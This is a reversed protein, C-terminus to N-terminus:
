PPSTPTPLSTTAIAFTMSLADLHDTEGVKPPLAPIGARETIRALAMQSRLAHNKPLSLNPLEAALRLYALTRRNTALRRQTGPPPLSGTFSVIPLNAARLLDILGAGLGAADIVVTTPGYEHYMTCIDDAQSCLDAPRIQRIALVNPGQRVAVITKNGGLRAVDIGFIVPASSPRPDRNIAAEIAAIPFLAHAPAAPWQGLFLKRFNDDPLYHVGDFEFSDETPEPSTPLKSLMETFLRFSVAGPIVDHRNQINPHSLADLTVTHWDDANCAAAFYCPRASTNGIALIRNHEAVAVTQAAAFIEPSIGAAEDLIILLREAHLGQFRDPNPTAFGHIRANNDLQINPESSPPRTPIGLQDLRRRIHPWIITRVQRRTPATVITISNPHCANIVALDAALFSKGVGHAAPVAVRPHIDLLEAIFAQAATWGAAFLRRLTPASPLQYM